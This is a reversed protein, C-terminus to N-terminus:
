KVKVLVTKSDATGEANTVRVWYSTNAKLAPTTFKAATAGRVPNSTIGTKGKYWQYSAASSALVRLTVKKGKAVTTASPQQNIRPLDLSVGSVKITFNQSVSAGTFDAHAWSTITIPFSGTETPVGTISDLPKNMSNSHVLGAPLAGEITWIVPNINPGTARFTFNLSKNLPASVAYSGAKPALQSIMAGGGTAGAVTDYAGLGVVAAITWQAVKGAAMGGALPAEPLLWQVLPTRQLLLLLSALRSSVLRLKKSLQINKLMILFSLRLFILILRDFFVKGVSLKVARSGGYEGKGEGSGL